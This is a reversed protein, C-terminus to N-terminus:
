FYYIMVLGSKQYYFLIVKLNPFLVACTLEFEVNYSLPNKSLDLFELEQCVSIAYLNRIELINNDALSLEKLFPCANLIEISEIHNQNANLVTLMPMFNSLQLKNLKNANINLEYIMPTLIQPTIPFQNYSLDLYQLIPLESILGVPATCFKNQSLDLYLINRLCSFNKFDM